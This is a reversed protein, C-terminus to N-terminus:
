SKCYRSNDESQVKKIAAKTTAETAKGSIAGVGALVIPGRKAVGFGIRKLAWTLAAAGSVPAVTIVSGLVLASVGVGTAIGIAAATADVIADETQKKM